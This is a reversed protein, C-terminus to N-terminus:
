KVEDVEIVKDKSAKPKQEKVNKSAGKLIERVKDPSMDSQGLTVNASATINSPRGSVTLFKDMIISVAYALNQPPIQDLKEHLVNLSDGVMNSLKENVKNLFEQETMNLRYRLLNAVSTRLEPDTKKLKNLEKTANSQKAAIKAASNIIENKTMDDCFGRM